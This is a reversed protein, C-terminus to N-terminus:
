RTQQAAATSAVRSRWSIQCVTEPWPACRMGLSVGRQGRPGVCLSSRREKKTSDQSEQRRRVLSTHSAPHRSTVRTGRPPSRRASPPPIIKGTLRIGPPFTRSIHQELAARRAERAEAARDRTQRQSQATHRHGTGRREVIKGRQCLVAHVGGPVRARPVGRPVRCPWM